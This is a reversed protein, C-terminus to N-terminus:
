SLRLVVTEGLLADAIEEEVTSSLKSDITISLKGPEKGYIDLAVIVVHAKNLEKDILGSALAAFVEDETPIGGGENPPTSGIIRVIEWTENTFKIFIDARKRKTNSEKLLSVTQGAVMKMLDYIGSSGIISPLIITWFDYNGGYLSNWLRHKIRVSVEAANSNSM